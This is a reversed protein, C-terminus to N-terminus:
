PTCKKNEEEILKRFIMSAEIEPTIEDISDAWFDKKEKFEKRQIHFQINLQKINFISLIKHINELIEKSNYATVIYYDGIKYKTENDGIEYNVKSIKVGNITNAIINLTRKYGYKEIVWSILISELKDWSCSINIYTGNISIGTINSCDIIGVRISNLEIIANNEKIEDTSLQKNSLISKESKKKKEKKDHKENCTAIKTPLRM